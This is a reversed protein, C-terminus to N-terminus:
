DFERDFSGSRFLDEIVVGAMTAVPISLVAGVLGGVKVGVLLAVISMVPNLGTAKQMVKPVLLNNEVQQIVLYLAVVALGVVFSDAFGVVAAPALSLAPGVYPVIEFVGAIVALLLAYKVGLASLGAYVAVGVIVGLLMQGRLWAGIKTQMKSFLQALYPQYEVPALNKFLKRATDEEMVMYFALVLVVFLAAVGGLLGRVQVLVAAVSSTEGRLVSLALERAVDLGARTNVFTEQFALGAQTAGFLQGSQEVLVPVILIALACTAMGLLLYVIMVSLARPVRRKEFWDAFPAILAALLVAAVLMAVVDRVYWLFWVGLAVLVAKVFTMTSVNITHPAAEM